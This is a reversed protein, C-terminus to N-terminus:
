AEPSSTNQRRRQGSSTKSRWESHQSSSSWKPGKRKYENGRNSQSSRRAGAHDSDADRNEVLAKEAVMKERIAPWQELLGTLKPSWVEEGKDVDGYDLILAHNLLEFEGQRSRILESMLGLSGLALGLDHCFSRVYFGSSVTLRIRAAPPGERPASATSSEAETAHTEQTLQVSTQTEAVEPRRKKAATEESPDENATELTSAPRKDGTEPGKVRAKGDDATGYMKRVADKEEEPAEEAPWEFHHQGLEYWEVITCEDVKMDKDALVRPLEKGERAYEYAHKGDIRKASFIPPTQKIEGTFKAKIAAEAAERTIHKYPARGVVKGLCDYTDTAAGFLVVTEYTKKCGLFSPLDKTGTGVGCILVGTALPDLTGGHGLKVRISSDRRRRHERRSEANRRDREAAIAASFHKSPIFQDQLDRLVQASTVGEPKHIAIPPVHSWILSVNSALLPKSFPHEEGFVGDIVPPSM